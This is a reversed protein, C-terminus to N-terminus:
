ITKQHSIFYVDWLLLFYHFLNGSVGLYYSLIGELSADDDLYQSLEECFDNLSKAEWYVARCRKAFISSFCCAAILLSKENDYEYFEEPILLPVDNRHERVFRFLLSNLAPRNYENGMQSSRSMILFDYQSYALHRGGLMDGLAPLLDGAALGRFQSESFLCPLMAQLIDVSLNKPSARETVVAQCNEFAAVLAVDLLETRLTKALSRSAEGIVKMSKLLVSHQADILRYSRSPGCYIAPNFGGIHVQPVWSPSDEESARYHSISLIRSLHDPSIIDPDKVLFAWVDKVWHMSEWSNLEFCKKLTSNAIEFIQQRDSRSHAQMSTLYSRNFPVIRGNEVIVGVGLHDNRQNTFRGWKGEISGSFALLWLGDPVSEVNLSIIQNNTGSDRHILMGSLYRDKNTSNESVNFSVFQESRRLLNIAHIDVQSFGAPTCFSIDISRTGPKIVWDEVFHPSVIKLLTAPYGSIWSTLTNQERDIKDLLAALSTKFWRSKDFHHHLTHSGLKLKCEETSFIRIRRTDDYGCSLTSGLPLLQEYRFGDKLDSIYMFTGPLAFKIAIKQRSTVNFCVEVFPLDPDIVAISGSDMDVRINNSSDLDISNETPLEKLDLKFGSGYHDLGFWVLASNRGLIRNEGQRRIVAVVRKFGASWGLRRYDVNVSASRNEITLSQRYSDEGGSTYVELEYSSSSFNWEGPVKINVHLGGSSYFSKGSHPVVLDGGFSVSAEDHTHILFSVPGRRIERRDGSELEFSGLFFGNHYTQDLEVWTDNIDFRSLMMYKGPKFVAGEESLCHSGELIGTEADFIAFQNDRDSSWLQFEFPPVNGGTVKITKIALSELYYRKEGDKDKVLIVERNGDMDVDWSVSNELKPLAIYIEDGDLVLQPFVAVALPEESTGADKYAEQLYRQLYYGQSDNLLARINQKGFNPKLTKKFTEYWFLQATVDDQEPLGTRKAYREMQKLLDPLSSEPIGAQEMYADVMYRHGFLRNSVPLELKKCAKRFALWLCRREDSSQQSRAKRGMALNICGWIASTDSGLHDHLFHSLYSVFLAPAIRLGKEFNKLTGGATVLANGVFKQADQSILDDILGLYPTESMKLKERVELEYTSFVNNNASRKM